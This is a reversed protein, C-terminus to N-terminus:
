ALGGSVLFRGFLCLAFSFAFLFLLALLINQFVLNGFHVLMSYRISLLLNPSHRSSHLSAKGRDRSGFLFGAFYAAMVFGAVTVSFGETESRVGILSGQLGNGAMLLLIGLFLARAAGTPNDEILPGGEIIEEDPHLTQDTM